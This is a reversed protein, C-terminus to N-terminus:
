HRAFLFSLVGDDFEAEMWGLFLSLQDFFGEAAAAPQPVLHEGIHLLKVGGRVLVVDGSRGAIFLFGGEEFLHVALRQAGDVLVQALSEQVEEARRGPKSVRLELGLFGFLVGERHVAALVAGARRDVQRVLSDLHRLQPQDRRVDVAFGQAPPRQLQHRHALGPGALIEAGGGKSILHFRRFLNNWALFSGEAQVIGKGAEIHVALACAGDERRQFLGPFLQGPQLAPEGTHLGAGVVVFLLQLLDPKQVLADGVLPAVEDVLFGPPYGVGPVGHAYPVGVQYLQRPLQLLAAHHIGPKPREPRAQLVLQLALALRVDHHATQGGGGLGAIAAAVRMLLQAGVLLAPDAGLAPLDDGPLDVGGLVQPVHPQGLEVAFIPLCAGRLATEYRRSPGRYTGMPVPTSQIPM